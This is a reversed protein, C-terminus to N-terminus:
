IDQGAGRLAIPHFTQSPRTTGAFAPVEGSDFRSEQRQLFSSLRRLVSMRNGQRPGAMSKNGFKTHPIMM